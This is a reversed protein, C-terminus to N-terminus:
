PAWPRKGTLKDTTTRPSKDMVALVRHLGTVHATDNNKRAENYREALTDMGEVYAQRHAGKKLMGWAERIDDSIEGQRTAGALVGFIATTREPEELRDILEFPGIANRLPIAQSDLIISILMSSKLEPIFAMWVKIDEDSERSAVMQYYYDRLAYLDSDPDAPPSQGLVVPLVDLLGSTSAPNPDTGFLKIIQQPIDPQWGELNRIM